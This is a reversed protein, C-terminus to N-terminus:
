LAGSEYSVVVSSGSEVFEAIVKFFGYVGDPAQNDVTDLEVINGGDDYLPQFDFRFFADDLNEMHRVDVNEDLRYESKFKLFAKECNEASIKFNSYTSM